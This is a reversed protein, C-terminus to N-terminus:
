WREKQLHQLTLIHHTRRHSIWPKGPDEPLFHSWTHQGCLLSFDTTMETFSILRCRFKRSTHTVHHHGHDTLRALAWFSPADLLPWTVVSTMGSFLHSTEKNQLYHWPQLLCYLHSSFNQWWLALQLPTHLWTAWASTWHQCCQM